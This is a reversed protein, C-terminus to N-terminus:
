HHGNGNTAVHARGRAKEPHRMQMLPIGVGYTVFDGEPVVEIVCVDEMAAPDAALDRFVTAMISAQDEGPDMVRATGQFTITAAPIKIWPMFPIRKSIPVTMSVHPNAAIHRVKWTDRGTGIYLKHDRVVYVIGATRAENHVTVMGLVGFLEEELVKWVQEAKLELSM